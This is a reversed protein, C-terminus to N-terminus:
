FHHPWLRGEAWRSERQVWVALRVAMAAGLVAASVPSLQNMLGRSRMGPPGEALICQFSYPM